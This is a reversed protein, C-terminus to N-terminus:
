TGTLASLIFFLIHPLFISRAPVIYGIATTGSDFREIPELLLISFMFVNIKDIAIPASARGANAPGWFDLCAEGSQCIAPHSTVVQQQLSMQGQRNLSFGVCMSHSPM